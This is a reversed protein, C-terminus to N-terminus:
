KRRRYRKKAGMVGFKKVLRTWLTGKRRKRKGGTAACVQGQPGHFKPLSKWLRSAKRAAAGLSKRAGKKKRLAAILKPFSLKKGRYKVTIPYNRSRRRMNKGRLRHAVSLRGGPNYAYPPADVTLLEPNSAYPYGYHNPARPTLESLARTGVGCRGLRPHWSGRPCGVRFKSGGSEITRISRPDYGRRSRLHKHRYLSFKYPM